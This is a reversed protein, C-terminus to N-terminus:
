EAAEGAVRALWAALTEDAKEQTYRELYRKRAGKGLRDRLGEDELIRLM